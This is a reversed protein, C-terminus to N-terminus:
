KLAELRKTLEEAVKEEADEIHHYSPMQGTRRGTTKQRRPKTGDEILHTLQPKNQNYVIIGALGVGRSRKQPKTRTWGMAYSGRRKQGPSTNRLQRVAIGAVDEVADNTQITVDEAYAKLTKAIEESLEGIPTKKRPPM